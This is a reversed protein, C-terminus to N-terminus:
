RAPKSRARGIIRRLYAQGWDNHCHMNVREIPFTTEYQGGEEKDDHSHEAKAKHTREEM